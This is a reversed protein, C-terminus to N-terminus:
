LPAKGLQDIMKRVQPIAVIVICLIAEVALFSGNYVLSHWIPSVGEPAYEAFFVFGSIFHCLFRGFIAIVIGPILLKKNRLLGVLGLMAFALPYDLILGMPHTVWYDQVLQLLGYAAGAIIGPGTGYLYAFVMMPLMSAVTVSGGQPMRFIRLYSLVFSLAICLSARVLMQVTWKGRLQPLFAALGLLAFLVVLVITSPKLEAFGQLIEQM